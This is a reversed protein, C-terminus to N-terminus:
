WHEGIYVLTCWHVGHPGHQQEAVHGVGSLTKMVVYIKDNVYTSKDGRCIGEIKDSQSDGM